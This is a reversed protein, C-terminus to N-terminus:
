KYAIDRFIEAVFDIFQDKNTHEPIDKYEIFKLTEDDEGKITVGNSDVVVKKIAGFSFLPNYDKIAVMTGTLASAKNVKELDNNKIYLEFLLGAFDKYISDSM